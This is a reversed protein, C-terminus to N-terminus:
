IDCYISLVWITLVPTGLVDSLRGYGDGAQPVFVSVSVKGWSDKTGMGGFSCLYPTIGVAKPALYNPFRLRGLALPAPRRRGKYGGPPGVQSSVGTMCWGCCLDPGDLGLDLMEIRPLNGGHLGDRKVLGLIYSRAQTTCVNLSPIPFPPPSSIPPYTCLSAYSIETLLVAWASGLLRAFRRSLRRRPDRAKGCM